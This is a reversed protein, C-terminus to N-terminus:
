IRTRSVALAHLRLASALPRPGRNGDIFQVLAALSRGTKLRATPLADLRGLLIRAAFAADLVTHAFLIGPLGFIPNGISLGLPALAANIWGSRGWVTLLGFAVVLGPTVIASAFLGVVFDRGFFNLRNLSWALATGVVLSLLTTLAAQIATMRLLHAVDVSSGGGATVTGAANLIAGLILVVVIAILAAVAAGGILRFPRRPLVIANSSRPWPKM